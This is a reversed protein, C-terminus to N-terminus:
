LMVIVQPLREKCVHLLNLSADSGLLFGGAVDCGLYKGTYDYRLLIFDVGGREKPVRTNHSM